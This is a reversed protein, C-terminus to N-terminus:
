RARRLRRLTGQLDPNDEPVLVNVCKEGLRIEALHLLDTGTTMVRLFLTLFCVSHSLRKPQAVSHYLM